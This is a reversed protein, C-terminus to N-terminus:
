AGNNVPYILGHHLHWPKIISESLKIVCVVIAFLAMVVFCYEERLEVSKKNPFIYTWITKGAVGPQGVIPQSYVGPQVGPQPQGAQANGNYVAQDPAAGVAFLSLTDKITNVVM